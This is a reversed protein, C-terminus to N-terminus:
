EGTIEAIQEPSAGLRLGEAAVRVMQEELQKLKFFAVLVGVTFPNRHFRNQAMKFLRRDAELQVWRPDLNWPTGEEGRNLLWRYKWDSWDNWTDASREIASLAPALLISAMPDGYGALMSEIASADMDYYVRLRLAWVINQLIIEERILPETAERDSLSLSQVAKWLNRYYEHDLRTEWVVQESPDPVSDYWACSTDRTIAAIDPWAEHNFISRSGLDVIFPREAKGLALAAAEAKLNNYEYLSLLALSVPDPREYAGLLNLFQNVTKQEFTRELLLALLGEPVLPVPEDYLLAWLDQLRRTEFLRKSRPGIWSKARLACSRAYVFADAGVRDM